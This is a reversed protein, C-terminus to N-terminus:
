YVQNHGEQLLGRELKGEELKKVPKALMWFISYRMPLKKRGVMEVIVIARNLGGEIGITTMQKNKFEYYVKEPYRYMSFNLDFLGDPVLSGKDKKKYIADKCEKVTRLSCYKFSVNFVGGEGDM